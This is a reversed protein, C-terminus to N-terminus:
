VTSRVITLRTGVVSYLVNRVVSNLTEIVVLVKVDTTVEVVVDRLRTVM